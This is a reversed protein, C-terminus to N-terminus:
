ENKSSDTSVAGNIGVVNIGDSKVLTAMTFSSGLEINKEIKGNSMNVFMVGGESLYILYKDDESLGVVKGKQIINLDRTVSQSATDIIRIHGSLEIKTGVISGDGLVNPSYIYDQSVIKNKSGLTL